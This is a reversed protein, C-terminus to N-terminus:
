ILEGLNDGIDGMDGDAAFAAFEDEAASRSMKRKKHVNQYANHPYVGGDPLSRMQQLSKLLDEPVISNPEAVAPAFEPQTTHHVPAVPQALADDMIDPVPDLTSTAPQQPSGIPTFSEMPPPTLEEIQPREQAVPSTTAVPFPAASIKNTEAASLGKLIAEEVERKRSEIADKRTKLDVIQEEEQDLKVKNSELLKELGSILAQRAKISEMVAGEAVALKKVLAALGAAHMPPSPITANPNTLKEYDQNATIISPKANLDAKQLSTALPAVSALETPISSGSFLSGGLAPKRTSKSRDIDPGTNTSKACLKFTTNSRVM